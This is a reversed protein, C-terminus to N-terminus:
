KLIIIDDYDDGFNELKSVRDYESTSMFRYVTENTEDKQKFKWVLFSDLNVAVVLTKKHGRQIRYQEIIKLANEYESKTIKGKM